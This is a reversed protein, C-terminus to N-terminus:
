NETQQHQKVLMSHKRYDCDIGLALNKAVRIPYKLLRVFNGEGPRSCLWPRRIADLYSRQNIVWELLLEAKCDFPPRRLDLFRFDGTKIPQNFMSSRHLSTRIPPVCNTVLTLKFRPILTQIIRIVEQNSLHQLVDKIILLDAAPILDYSKMVSFTVNDSGYAAGNREIVSEAADFGHYEIGSWDILKSFQWDGCGLDVVSRIRNELLFRGLFERYPLTAEPSSGSGSGNGWYHTKYIEDFVNLDGFQLDASSKSM